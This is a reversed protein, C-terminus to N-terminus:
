MKSNSAGDVNKSEKAETPHRQTRLAERGEIVGERKVQEQILLLLHSSAQMREPADADESWAEATGFRVSGNEAVDDCRSPIDAINHDTRVYVCCIRIARGDTHNGCLYGDLKELLERAQPRESYMREVWGKACLSDTAVLVTTVQKKSVKVADEVAWLIAELEAEGIYAHDSKKNQWKWNTSGLRACIAIQAKVAQDETKEEMSADVAYSFMFSSQPFWEPQARTKKDEDKEADRAEQLEQRLTELQSKTINNNIEDWQDVSAPSNDGFVKMLDRRYLVKVRRVRLSWLIEGLMAAIERHTFKTKAVGDVEFPNVRDRKSTTRWWGYGFTIGNFDTGASEASIELVQPLEDKFELNLGYKADTGSKLIMRDRWAEAVEKKDTVLFVNDQLVFIGGIGDAFPVWQPMAKMNTTDVHPLKEGADQKGLLFSWTITQAFSPSLYWGMPLTKLRYVKSGCRVQFMNRMHVPIRIQHFWHRLDANICYFKRHGIAKHQCRHFVNSVCQFLADLTFINYPAPVDTKVNAERADTIIRLVEYMKGLYEVLKGPKPVMFMAAHARIGKGVEPDNCDFCEMMNIDRLYELVVELNKLNRDKPAGRSERKADQYEKSAEVFTKGGEKEEKLHSLLDKAWGPAQNILKMLNVRGVTAKDVKDIRAKLEEENLNFLNQQQQEGTSQPVNKRHFYHSIIESAFMDPLFPHPRKELIKSFTRM